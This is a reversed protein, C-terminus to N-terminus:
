GIKYGAFASLTLTGGVLVTKTGSGVDITIHATDGSTMQIISSFPLALTANGNMTSPNVTYVVFSGSTAVIDVSASSMGAFSALEVLYVTGTILYTGTSPATFVGTGTNFASGTNVSTSDFPITYVTGDGTVNSQNGSLYAQFIPSTIATAQVLYGSFFTSCSGLAAGTVSVTKTSGGLQLTLSATDTATMPILISGSYSELGAAVFPTPLKFTTTANNITSTFTLLASTQATIATCQVNYSFMYNGTVPATFHASAGTTFASNTDVAVSDFAIQYATGDGTVNSAQSSLYAFFVIPASGGGGGSPTQWTPDAGTNAGLFQGTTGNAVSALASSTAGGIQVCHQTAPSGVFATGSFGTIGTTSENISNSPTTVM